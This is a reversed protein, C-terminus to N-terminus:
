DHCSNSEGKSIRRARKMARRACMALLGLLTVLSIADSVRWLPRGVFRVRLTGNAGAPLMVTLRNNEGMGTELPAGDLRAEYGAFGFVPLTLVADGQASVACTIHTGAKDMDGVQADGAVGISKDETLAYDTGILAYDEQFHELTITEGFPICDGKLTETTLLPAAGIVAVSLVLALTQKGGDMVRCYGYGGALALFVDAVMLLRWPLQLEDTLGGTMESLRRWPFLTTAMLAFAAGLVISLAVCAHEKTMAKWRTTALEYLAFATGLLLSVGLEVAFGRMHHTFATWDVAGDPRIMALLLQAPEVANADCNGWLLAYGQGNESGAWLLPVLFFLNLLLTVGAAKVLALLRGEHLLKVIGLACLVVALVAAIVTSLLHSQFIGTAGFVLLLWRRKDGVIIEWLGLLFLPLFAMALMEGVAFRTYVDTLRYVALTYLMSAALAANRERLVRRALAYMSVASLINVMAFLTHVALQISASTLLMVAPLLLFLDPYLMSVRTGYGNKVVGSVRPPFRELRLTEALNRLRMVHFNGDHGLGLSGKFLPTSAIVVAVVLMILVGRREATLMGFHGMVYLAVFAACAFTFLWRYDSYAMSRLEIDEIAFDTGEDFHFILQVDEADDLIEFERSLTWNNAPLDIRSPEIRAGNGSTIELWNDADTLVVWRLRYTGPQLNFYPGSNLAGHADGDETNFHLKDDVFQLGYLDRDRGMHERYYYKDGLGLGWVAAVLVVALLVPLVWLKKKM